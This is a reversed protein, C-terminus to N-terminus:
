VRLLRAYEKQIVDLCECAREKIGARDLLVVHGRSYRILGAEQLQCATESVGERRVGLMSAIETQTVYLEASALRDHRQLLWRCLKAQLEHQGSCVAIQAIQTILAQTHRLLWHRLKGGREFEKMLVEARLRYGQGKVQVVSRHRPGTAGVGELLVSTGVMGEHGIIAIEVSAEDALGSIVSVIGETPFFVHTVPEGPSIIAKGAALGVWELHGEVRQYDADPLAGLLLNSTAPLPAAQFSHANLPRWAYPAVILRASAEGM